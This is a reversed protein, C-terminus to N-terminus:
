EEDVRFPELVKGYLGLRGPERYVRMAYSLGQYKSNGLTSSLQADGNGAREFGEVMEMYEKREQWRQKTSEDLPLGNDDYKSPADMAVPVADLFLPYEVLEWPVTCAGEWDIVGLINYASDVMINSHFFDPHMVPFPGADSGSIRSALAKIQAPFDRISALVANTLEPPNGSLAQQITDESHPFKAHQAWAEFFATATEFPGGLGPLPGIDYSGDSLKVVTGIKPFRVSTM